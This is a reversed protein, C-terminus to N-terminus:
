KMYDAKEGSLFDERPPSFIDFTVTDELIAVAHPVNPPLHVMEGHSIVRKQGRIDFEVKGSLIHTMQEHPHKHKEINVGKVFTFQAIMVKEGSVLRRGIQPTIATQPLNAWKYYCAQSM